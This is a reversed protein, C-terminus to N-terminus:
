GHGGDLSDALAAVEAPRYARRVSLFLAPVIALLPAIWLWPLIFAASAFFIRSLLALSGAALLSATAWRPWIELFLGLTLRRQLRRLLPRISAPLNTMRASTEWRTQM